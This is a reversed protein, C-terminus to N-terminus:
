PQNWTSAREIGEPVNQRIHWSGVTIVEIMARFDGEGVVVTQIAYGQDFLLVIHM